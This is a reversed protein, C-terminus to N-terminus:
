LSVFDENIERKIKAPTGVVFSNDPFSGRTVASNSAILCGKGIKAGGLITSHSGVWTGFGISIPTIEPSGYRYSGNIKTHNGASLVVYPGLVVEDGLCIEGVAIFACGTAIYINSGLYVSSPNYFYISRGLRFDSGCSGFFPKALIGRLRLVQINDPLWNTLLLIFHLPWDYRMYHFLRILM